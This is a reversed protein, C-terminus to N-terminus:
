GQNGFIAENVLQSLNQKTVKVPSPQKAGATSQTTTVMGPQRLSTLKKEKIADLETEFMDKYAKLPNKIGTEAMHNLLTQTDTSPNGEKENTYLVNNVDDILKSAELEERNIYRTREELVKSERLLDDLQRLAEQRQEATLRVPQEQRQTPLTSQNVKEKLENIQREYDSIQQSKKTFEPWVRDIKTKYKEEAERAIEGLGVLNSLEQETYEKEGLKIKQEEVVEPQEQNDFFKDAMIEGGEM